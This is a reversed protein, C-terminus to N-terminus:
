QRRRLFGGVVVLGGGFLTAALQLERYWFPLEPAIARLAVLATSLVPVEGGSRQRSATGSIDTDGGYRVRGGRQEYEPLRDAEYPIALTERSWVVTGSANVELVRRNLTDTILTNGNELRDADRPWNLDVGGARELTWVPEWRGNERHLEVVRNNDSDAVLVAGQGLWHPNHQHDLIEPNGCRVDGDADDVLQEGRRRCSGDNEDSRDENIVEVVGEGRELLLIQNANRVSVLYHSENIADVDNTHLWDRKTPDEPPTYFSSARWEWTVSGDEVTYVREHEMDTILYAGSPLREAAHVESNKQTRVPDSYQGVVEPDPGPQLVHFGTRACPSEYEGCDEFGNSMFGVLLSGNDLREVDFYSDATQARWQVTTGNILYVSGDEHWGPGGGQSGVLTERQGDDDTTLTPAALASVGITLVVIAVGVVVAGTGLRTRNM